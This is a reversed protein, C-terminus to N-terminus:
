LRMSFPVLHADGGFIPANLDRHIALRDNVILGVPERAAVDPQLVVVRLGDHLEAIDPDSRLSVLWPASAKPSSRRLSTAPAIPRAAAARTNATIRSITATTSPSKRGPVFTAIPWLGYVAM